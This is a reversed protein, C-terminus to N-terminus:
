RLRAHHKIKKNMHILFSLMGIGTGIFYLLGLMYGEPFHNVLLRLFVDSMAIYEYLAIALLFYFSSLALVKGYFYWGVAALPLLWLAYIRDFHFMGALGAIFLIHLAFNLYTFAFHAKIKRRISWEAVVVLLLGLAFEALIVQGSSFNSSQLLTLPTVAIGMWAALNTIAMTLIGLHDFCYACFFLVVMPIFTALGYAHGFVSYQAQLYAVFSIMLLCGLLVIYDYFGNPSEVKNMSFPPRHRSAYFFCGACLLAILALIAQHGITDINQYILAGLGGALLMIGLYLLIRFEIHVSFLRTSEEEKVRQLSHASVLGEQHLQEFLALRTSHNPTM